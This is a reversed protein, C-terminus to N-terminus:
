SLDYKALLAQLEPMSILGDRDSDAIEFRDQTEHRSWSLGMEELIVTFGVLDLKGDGDVDIRRFATHLGDDISEATM